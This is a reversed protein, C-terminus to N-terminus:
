MRSGVTIRGWIGSSNFPHYLIPEELIVACGDETKLYPLNTLATGGFRETSNAISTFPKCTVEALAVDQKATWVQPNGILSAKMPAETLESPWFPVVTYEDTNWASTSVNFLLNTIVRLYAIDSIRRSQIGPSSPNVASFQRDETITVTLTDFLGASLPNIVVSSIISALVTVLLAWRIAGTKKRGRVAEAVQNWWIREKQLLSDRARAGHPLSLLAFPETRIINATVPTWLLTYLVAVVTPLTKRYFKSSENSSASSFGNRQHSYAALVFCCVGLVLSLVSLSLLYLKTLPGPLWKPTDSNTKTSKSFPQSLFKPHPLM